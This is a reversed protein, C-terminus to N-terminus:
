KLAGKVTIVGGNQNVIKLKTQALLSKFKKLEGSEVKFRAEIADKQLTLKELISKKSSLQSFSNLLERIKRQKQEINLYKQKISDRTLKSQLEPHNQYILNLKEEKSKLAKKYSFGEIIYLIGILILFIALVFSSKQIKEKKAGTNKSKKFWFGRKPRFRPAFKLYGSSELMKKPVITAYNDVLVIANEEDLSLPVKKLIDSLQDAFYIKGIQHPKIDYNKELFEEIEKPSYAYFNWDSLDKFVIFEYDNENPLLEELISPAIKKAQFEYKIPLQEKKLFYFQPSLVLDYVKAKKPRQMNKHLLLLENKSSLLNLAV